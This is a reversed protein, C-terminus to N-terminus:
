PARKSVNTEGEPDNKLTIKLEQLCKPVVKPASKSVKPASKSWKQCWLDSYAAWPAGLAAVGTEPDSKQLGKPIVKKVYTQMNQSFFYTRSYTMNKRQNKPRGPREMAHAWMCDTRAPATSVCTKQKQM